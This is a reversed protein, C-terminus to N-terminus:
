YVYEVERIRLGVFSLWIIFSLSVSYSKSALHSPTRLGFYLVGVKCTLTVLQTEQAKLVPTQAM